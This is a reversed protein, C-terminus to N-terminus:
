GAQPPDLWRVWRTTKRKSKSPCASGDAYLRQTAMATMMMRTAPCRTQRASGQGLSPPRSLRTQMRRSIAQPFPQTAEKLMTMLERSSLHTAMGNPTGASAKKARKTMEKTKRMRLQKSNKPPLVLQWSADLEPPVWASLHLLPLYSPFLSAPPIQPLRYFM